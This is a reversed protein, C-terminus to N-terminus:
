QPVVEFPIAPLTGMPQRRRANAGQNPAPREVYADIILNGKAGPKIKDAAARLVVAVGNGDASLGQLTVGQPPDNLSFKVDGVLRPPVNLKVEVSGGAPLKVTKDSAARLNAPAGQGIVRVMWESEPVLHRYAFAQMMDEAPVALHRVARGGIEARGELEIVAPTGAGTRPATMTFRVKDEGAPIVAGSM